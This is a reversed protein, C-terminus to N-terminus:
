EGELKVMIVSNPDKKMKKLLLSNDVMFQGFDSTDVEDKLQPISYEKPHADLWESVHPWKVEKGVDQNNDEPERRVEQLWKPSKLNLYELAVPLHHTMLNDDTVHNLIEYVDGIDTTLRGDAMTFLQKLTFTKNM